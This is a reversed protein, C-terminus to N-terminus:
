KFDGDNKENIEKGIICKIVIFKKSSNDNNM